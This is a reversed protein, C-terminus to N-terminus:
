RRFVAGTGQVGVLPCPGRSGKRKAERRSFNYLVKHRGLASLEAAFVKAFSSKGSGPGGSIVRVADDPDNENLWSLLYEKLEVVIQKETKNIPEGVRRVPLARIMPEEDDQSPPYYSANLPVYLDSLNYIEGFVAGDAQKRLSARYRSWDEEAEEAKM